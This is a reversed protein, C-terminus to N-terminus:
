SVKRLEPNYGLYSRWEEELWGRKKAVELNTPLYLREKNQIKARIRKIDDQSSVNDLNKIPLVLDNGIKDLYNRYFEAWVCQTLYVDSNRAQPYKELCFLIEKKLTKFNIM